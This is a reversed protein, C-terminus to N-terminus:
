VNEDEFDILETLGLMVESSVCEAIHELTPKDSHKFAHRVGMIIHDDMREALM